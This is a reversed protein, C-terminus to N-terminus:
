AGLITVWLVAAGATLASSQNINIAQGPGLIFMQPGNPTFRGTGSGGALATSVGLNGDPATYSSQIAGGTEASTVSLQYFVEALHNKGDNPATWTLITSTGNILTYGAVPTSAVPVLTAPNNLATAM